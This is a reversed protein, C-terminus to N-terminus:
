LPSARNVPVSQYDIWREGHAFVEREELVEVVQKVRNKNVYVAAISSIHEGEGLLLVHVQETM